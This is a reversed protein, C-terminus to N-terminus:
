ESEGIPISTGDDQQAYGGSIRAGTAGMGREILALVSNADGEIEARVLTCNALGTGDLAELRVSILVDTM